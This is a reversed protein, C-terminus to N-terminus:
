QADGTVVTYGKVGDGCEYCIAENTDSIHDLNGSYDVYAPFVVEAGCDPCKAWERETELKWNCVTNGNIDRSTGGDLHYLGDIVAALIRQVEARPDDTFAANDTNINLTFAM